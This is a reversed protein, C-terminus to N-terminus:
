NHRVTIICSSKNQMVELRDKRGDAVM